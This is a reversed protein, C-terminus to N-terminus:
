PQGPPQVGLQRLLRVVLRLPFGVVNDWPGAIARVLRAGEAQIAYAGAKDQVEASALYEEIVRRSLRRMRVRTRSYSAAEGQPAIVHVATYVMHERGSLARLMRAADVPGSPKGFAVGELAVVTDAAIVLRGPRRAAVARAKAAAAWRATKLPSMPEPPREDIRPHVVDFPLGLTALL